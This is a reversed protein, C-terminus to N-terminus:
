GAAVEELANIIEKVGDMPDYIPLGYHGARRVILGAHVPRPAPGVVPGTEVLDPNLNLAQAIQRAFRARTIVRQGALNIAGCVGQSIAALIAEALHPVYTPSGYLRPVTVPQGARLRDIVTTVFNKSGADFLVTTRVILDATRQRNTLAIEGGLKSWGYISIPDPQADENYPGSIGNFIYDTSIHVIKGAFCQGLLHVGGTNTAAARGPAHECGDVDTFAACNIVVDPNIARIEDFLPKFDTINARIPVCGRWVLEKGLRGDPGTVAITKHTM